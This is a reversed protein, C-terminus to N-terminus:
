PSPNFITTAVGNVTFTAGAISAQLVVAGAGVCYATNLGVFTVTPQANVAFSVSGNYACGLYTGSVNITYNPNVGLTSPTFTVTNGSVNMGPATIIPTGGPVSVTVTVPTNQTVCYQQGTAAIGSFSVTGAAVVQIQATGTFACAGVTGAQTITYTGVGVLPNFVTGQVGTGSFPGAQTSNITVNGGNQCIQYIGGAGIAGAGSFSLTATPQESITVVQSISYSCPAQTGSYTITVTGGNAGILSPTFLGNSTVVGAPVSSFTGQSVSTLITFAPQNICYSNQLNLFAVQPPAVVTFSFVGNYACGLSSGSYTITYSGATLLSPNITATNNAITISGNSAIMTGNTPTTGTLGIIVPTTSTTCYQPATGSFAVGNVTFGVTSAAVVQIQATTSFQCPGQTGSYTLTFTGIGAVAPNFVTGGIIGTGAFIGGAPTGTPAFPPANVCIQYIGNSGIAGAGAAFSISAAPPASVTVSQTASYNCGLLTGSYSVTTTGGNPAFLAPSFTSPLIMGTGSFVGGAPFGSITVNASTTCYTSALGTITATPVASVTVTTTTSFACGNITGSYTLIHTGVGALSPTFGGAGASGNPGTFTGGIPTLTVPIATTQSVCYPGALGTISVNTPPNSVTIFGDVVFPCGQDTGRRRITVTGSFNAPNFQCNPLLTEVDGNVTYCQGGAPTGTITIPASNKCIFEPLNTFTAASATCCLKLTIADQSGSLASQFVFGSGTQGVPFNSSLSGGVVIACNNGDVAVAFGEDRAAGGYYTGYDVSRAANFRVLLVDFDNGGPVGQFPNLILNPLSASRTRGTVYLGGDVPSIAVDRLEDQGTGGVYTVWIRQGTPSYEALYGDIFGGFTSQNYAGPLNTLPLNNSQTLGAVYTNGADDLTVGYAEDFASGGSYAVFQCVRSTSLRLTFADQVGGYSGITVGSVPLDTSETRGVIAIGQANVAIKEGSDDSSGGYYTAWVLEGTSTFQLIFADADSSQGKVLQNCAGPAGQTPFDICVTLGTFFVNGNADIAAGKGEDAGLEDQTFGGISGGYYTGWQLQGANNFYAAFADRAGGAYGPQVANPVNLNLSKTDGTIVVNGNSAAALGNGRDEGSGGYYTAWLRNGNNDLKVVFADSPDGNYTIDSAGASVPFNISSTTGGININNQGDLGLDNAQELGTGGYYTSFARTLPDIVLTQNKDYDGVEFTLLNKDLKFRSTVANRTTGDLVYSVPADEVMKGLPNVAELAGNADLTLKDAATYRLRIDSVKGGARVVFDYKMQGQAEYFMLDINPYVNQYVLKRYSKVNEFKGHALYYNSYARAADQALVTPAPNAGELEMDVRYLRTIASETKAFFSKKAEETRTIEEVKPFVYSLANKRFFIKVSGVDATYLVDPRQAGQVDKIQGKNETFTLDKQRLLDAARPDTGAWGTMTSVLTLLCSLLIKRM